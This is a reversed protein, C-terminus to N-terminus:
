PQLAQAAAAMMFHVANDDEYGISDWFDCNAVPDVATSLPSDLLM